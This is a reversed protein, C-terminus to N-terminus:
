IELLIKGKTRGSEAHRHAAAAQELPFCHEIVTRLQGEAMLGAMFEMDSGCPKALHIRFRKSGVLKALGLQIPHYKPYLFHESIYVGQETLAPLCSLFTRRGVADLIIDYRRGNKAFDERTYDIVHDAGLAKVWALNGTSTVATVEGAGLARALQVAVHGIGGSAGYVLVKQGPQIQAVDRLAQLATQGVCPLAAAEQFTVNPPILSLISESPCVFEAYGGACSGFVRDGVKFKTVKAGVAEVTGAMDMGLIPRKPRLLGAFLRALLGRRMLWDAPNVSAYHVRVLVRNQDRLLPPEVNEVRLVEPPGYSRYLAARM